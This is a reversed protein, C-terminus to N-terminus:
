LALLGLEADAAARVLAQDCTALPLQLRSALELYAADYTTLSYQRALHPLRLVVARDPPDIDIPMQEILQLFEEGHGFVIRKRRVAVTLANGMEYFWLWPVVPRHAESISKLIALSYARDEEDELFWRLAISSDVVFASM